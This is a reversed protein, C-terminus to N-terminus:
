QESCKGGSQQLVLLPNIFKSPSLVEKVCGREILELIAEFVFDKFKFASSRNPIAFNEPLDFFPIRYGEVIFSLTLPAFAIPGFILMNGSPALKLCILLSKLIFFM